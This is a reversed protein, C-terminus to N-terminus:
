LYSALTRAFGEELDVLPKWGLSELKDISPLYRSVQSPIYGPKALQSDVMRVPLHPVNLTAILYALDKVSIEAGSNGMNYVEGPLGRSLLTLFARTSDALYCFCRKAEGSSAVNIPKKDLADRIFDAFVRGDDLDLQPGYTHFIRVCTSDLGKQTYYAKFIAEGMRKSEAYCSRVNSTDILGYDSELIPVNLAAGYVESSSFFLLKKSEWGVAQECLRISGLCNPMLTGIPDTKYVRPTAQSAAHVIIGHRPLKTFDFSEVSGEVITLDPHGLWPYIRSGASIPSRSLVTVSINLRLLENAQLLARVLYSGLLGSGGTVLCSENEFFKWEISALHIINNLDDAVIANEANM